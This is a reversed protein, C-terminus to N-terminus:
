TVVPYKARLARRASPDWGSWGPDRGPSDSREAGHHAGLGLQQRESRRCAFVGGAAVLRANELELPLERPKTQGMLPQALHRLHM